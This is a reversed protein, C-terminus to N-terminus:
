SRAEDLKKGRRYAKLADYDEKLKEVNLGTSMRYYERNFRERDLGLEIVAMAVLLPKVSKEPSFKELLERNRAREKRLDKELDAIRDYLEWKSVM